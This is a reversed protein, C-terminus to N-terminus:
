GTPIPSLNAIRLLNFTTSVWQAHQHVRSLGRSKTKALGGIFKTWGFAEEIRKRVKQSIKYSLHRTTRGDLGPTKRGKIQAIHPRISRTRCYEVLQKCHYGKYAGLSVPKIKKKLLRDLLKEAVQPESASARMVELEVCLGHRNDMLLHGSYCLRAEQGNGKRYLMAEPDTTSQHTKNGRKQGHFDVGDNGGDNDGEQDKPRFSKLSAWAEILTGDVTFHEDSLLGQSRALSVVSQFFKRSVEHELLRERNKSFTSADFSEEELDMGLFWRFLLDHDLRECFLRDSRISYLATLVMSKLLREPPISPRGTGSYMAEFVKDLRKLAEEAWHKIRRLPHDSRVREELNVYYFIGAQEDQNGRM